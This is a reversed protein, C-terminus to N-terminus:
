DRGNLWMVQGQSVLEKSCTDKRQIVGEERHKAREQDGRGGLMCGSNSWFFFTSSSLGTLVGLLRVADMLRFIFAM